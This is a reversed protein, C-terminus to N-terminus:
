RIMLSQVPLDTDLRGRRDPTYRRVIAIADRIDHLLLRDSRM